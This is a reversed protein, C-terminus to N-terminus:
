FFMGLHGPAGALAIGMSNGYPAQQQNRYQDQNQNRNQGQYRGNSANAEPPIGNARRALDERLGKLPDLHEVMRLIWELWSDNEDEDEDEDLRIIDGNRGSTLSYHGNGRRSYRRTGWNSPNTSLNYENMALRLPHSPPLVEPSPIDLPSNIEPQVAILPNVPVTPRDNQHSPAPSNTSPGFPRSSAFHSYPPPTEEPPAEDRSGSSYPPPSSLM